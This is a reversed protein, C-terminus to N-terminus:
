SEGLTTLLADARKLDAPRLTGNATAFGHGSEIASDPDNRYLAAFPRLAAVLQAREALLRDVAELGARSWAEDQGHLWRRLSELAPDTTRNTAMM